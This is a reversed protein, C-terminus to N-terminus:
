GMSGDASGPGGDGLSSTQTDEKAFPISSYVALQNKCVKQIIAPVLIM